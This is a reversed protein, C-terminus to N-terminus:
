CYKKQIRKCRGGRTYCQRKVWRMQESSYTFGWVGSGWSWFFHGFYALGFLGFCVLDLGIIFFKLLFQKELMISGALLELYIGLIGSLLIKWNKNLFNFTSVMYWEFEIYFFSHIFYADCAFIKLNKTM